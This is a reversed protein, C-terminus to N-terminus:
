KAKLGKDILQRIAESRSITVAQGSIWDDVALLQGRPMLVTVPLAQLRPRRSTRSQDDGGM